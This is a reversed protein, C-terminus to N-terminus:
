QYLFNSGGDTMFLTVWLTPKFINLALLQSVERWWIRWKQQQFEWEKWNFRGVNLPADCIQISNEDIKVM